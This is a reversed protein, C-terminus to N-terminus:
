YEFDIAATGSKTYVVYDGYVGIKARGFYICLYGFKGRDWFYAL